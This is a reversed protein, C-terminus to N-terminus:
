TSGSGPDFLLGGNYYLLSTGENSVAKRRFLIRSFTVRSCPVSFKRNEKVRWRAKMLEAMAFGLVLEPALLACFWFVFKRFISGIVHGLKGSFSMQSTDVPYPINPHLAVWTCLFITNICSWAISSLKRCSNLDNCSGLSNQDDSRPIPSAAVTLAHFLLLLAM